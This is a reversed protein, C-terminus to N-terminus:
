SLAQSKWTPIEPEYKIQGSNLVGISVTMIICEAEYDGNDTRVKCGWEGYEIGEVKTKLKINEERIEKVM